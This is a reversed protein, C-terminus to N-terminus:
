SSCYYSCRVHLCAHEDSWLYFTDKVGNYGGIDATACELISHYCNSYSGQGIVYRLQWIHLCLFLIVRSNDDFICRLSYIKSASIARQLYISYSVTSWVPRSFWGRIQSKQVRNDYSRKFSTRFLYICHRKCLCTWNTSIKDFIITRWKSLNWYKLIKFLWYNSSIDNYGAHRAM